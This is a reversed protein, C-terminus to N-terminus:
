RRGRGRRDEGGRLAKLADLTLRGTKAMDLAEFRRATAAQWEKLTIKGDLNADANLVPEPDDILSYRAAGELSTTIRGGGISGGGAGRGGRGGGRRAGGHGGREGGGERDGREGEGAQPRDFDNAGIEPAITEEYAQAEFGDIAGDRNKDLVKFFRAADAQFEEPTLAGDHDADAQAFWVELGDRGRFPEGSPSVFLRPGMRGGGGPPGGRHARFDHRPESACAALALALGMVALGKFM